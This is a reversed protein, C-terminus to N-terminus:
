TSNFSRTKKTTNKKQLPKPIQMKTSLLLRLPSRLRITYHHLVLCKEKPICM